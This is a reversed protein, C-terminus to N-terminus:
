PYLELEDFIQLRDGIHWAGVIERRLYIAKARDYNLYVMRRQGNAALHVGVEYPIECPYTPDWVVTAKM